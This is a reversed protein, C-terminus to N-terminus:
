RHAIIPRKNGEGRLSVQMASSANSIGRRVVIISGHHEHIKLAKKLGQNSIRSASIM